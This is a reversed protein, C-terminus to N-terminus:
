FMVIVALSVWPFVTGVYAPVFLTVKEPALMEAPAKAGDMTSLSPPTTSKPVAVLRVKVLPTAVTAENFFPTIVKYAASVAVIETVSPAMEDVPPSRSETLTATPAADLSAKDVLAAPAVYPLGQVVWGTTSTCSAAPLTTM